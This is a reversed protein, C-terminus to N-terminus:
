RASVSLGELIISALDAFGKMSGYAAAQGLKADWFEAGRLEDSPELMMKFNQRDWERRGKYMDGMVIKCVQHLAFLGPTKQLVFKGPQKFM